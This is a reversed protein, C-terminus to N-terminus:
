ILKKWRKDTKKQPEVRKALEVVVDRFIIPDLNRGLMYLIWWDGLDTKKTISKAVERPVMRNRANLLQPRIGPCFIILLRFKLPFILNKKTLNWLRFYFRVQINCPWDVFVHSDLVLVLHFHVDKWECYETSSYLTFRTKSHVGICWIQPIHMKYRTSFRLGNSWRTARSTNRLFEVGELRIVFIWWWFISENFIISGNHEFRLPIWM